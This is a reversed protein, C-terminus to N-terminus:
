QVKLSQLKKELESQEIVGMHTDVINGNKDLYKQHTKEVEDYMFKRNDHIKKAGVKIARDPNIKKENM